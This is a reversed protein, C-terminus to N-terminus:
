PLDFPNAFPLIFSFLMPDHVSQAASAFPSANKKLAHAKSARFNLIDSHAHIYSSNRSNNNPHKPAITEGSLEPFRRGAHKFVAIQTNDGLM